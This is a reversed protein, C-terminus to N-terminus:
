YSALIIIRINEPHYFDWGALELTMKTKKIVEDWINFGIPGMELKNVDEYKNYMDLYKIYTFSACYAPIQYDEDEDEDKALYADQDIWGAQYALDKIDQYDEKYPSLEAKIVDYVEWGCWGFDALVRKGSYDETYLPVTTWKYYDYVGEKQYRKNVQVFFRIDAGM